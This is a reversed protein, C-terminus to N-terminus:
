KFSAFNHILLPACIMPPHQPTPGSKILDIDTNFFVQYTLYLYNTKADYEGALTDIQKVFPVIGHQIRLKRIENASYGNPPNDGFYVKWTKVM